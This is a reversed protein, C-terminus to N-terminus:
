RGFWHRRMAALFDRTLPFGAASPLVADVGCRPCVATEDLDIWDGIEGAKFVALCHYCGCQASRRVLDAHDKTARQAEVVPDAVAVRDPTVAGAM